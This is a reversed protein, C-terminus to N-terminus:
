GFRFWFGFGFGLPLRFSHAFERGLPCIGESVPQLPSDTLNHFRSSSSSHPLLPDTSWSNVREPTSSPLHSNTWSGVHKTSRQIKSTSSKHRCFSLTPLRLVAPSLQIRIRSLVKFRSNLKQQASSKNRDATIGEMKGGWDGGTGAWKIASCKGWM